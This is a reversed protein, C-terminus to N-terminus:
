WGTSTTPCLEMQRNRMGLAPASAGGLQLMERAQTGWPETAVHIREEHVYTPLGKLASVNIRLLYVVEMVGQVSWSQEEGARGVRLEFYGVASGETAIDMTISSTRGLVIERGSKGHQSSGDTWVATRKLLVLSANQLLLPALAPAGPAHIALRLQLAHGSPLSLPTGILAPLTIVVTPITSDAQMESRSTPWVPKLRISRLTVLSNASVLNDRLPAREPWSKPLYQLPIIRGEHRRLGKRYVDIKLAYTIECSFGPAWSGYTPPLLIDETGQVVIPFSLNFTFPADTPFFDTGTPMDLSATESVITREFMSAIRGRTMATASASGQLTATIRFVHSCKRDLKLTAKLTAGTGYAPHRMGWLRRGLSISFMSGGYVYCADPRWLEPSDISPHTLITPLSQNSDSSLLFAHESPNLDPSYPPAAASDSLDHVFPDSHDDYRPLEAM